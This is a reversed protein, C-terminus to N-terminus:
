VVGLSVVRAGLEYDHHKFAARLIQCTCVFRLGDGERIQARECCVGFGHETGWIIRSKPSKICGVQRRRLVM